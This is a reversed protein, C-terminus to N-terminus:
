VNNIRTDETCRHCCRSRPAQLESGRELRAETGGVGLPAPMLAPAPCRSRLCRRWRRRRRSLLGVVAGDRLVDGGFVVRQLVVHRRDLAPPLASEQGRLVRLVRLM